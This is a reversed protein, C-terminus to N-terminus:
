RAILPAVVQWREQARSRLAAEALFRRRNEDSRFFYLRAGIVAFRRPDADIALGEAVGSADFGGFRPTYVEPAEVFADRNAASAFRWVAGDRILEYDSLGPVPANDIFYAVPDFGSLALGSHRDRLMTEGVGPLDPLGPPLTSAQSLAASLPLICCLGVGALTIGAHRAAAKM